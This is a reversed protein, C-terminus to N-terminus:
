QTIYRKGGWLGWGVGDGGRGLSSRTTGGFEVSGGWRM